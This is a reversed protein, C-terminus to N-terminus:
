SLTFMALAVTQPQLMRVDKQTIL